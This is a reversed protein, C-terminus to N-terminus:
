RFGIAYEDMHNERRELFWDLFTFQNKIVKKKFDDITVESNMSLFRRKGIRFRSFVWTQKENEHIFVGYKTGDIMRKIIEQSVKLIFVSGRFQYYRHNALENLEKDNYYDLEEQIEPETAVWGNYPFNSDSFLTPIPDPDIGIFNKGDFYSFSNKDWKENFIIQGFECKHKQKEQSVFLPKRRQDFKWSCSVM